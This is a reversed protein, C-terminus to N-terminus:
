SPLMTRNLEEAVVVVVLTAGKAAFASFQNLAADSGRYFFRSLHERHLEM